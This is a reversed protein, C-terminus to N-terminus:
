KKLHYSIIDFATSDNVVIHRSFQLCKFICTSCGSIIYAIWTYLSYRSLFSTNPAAIFSSTKTYFILMHYPEAAQTLVSAQATLGYWILVKTLGYWIFVKGDQNIMALVIANNSQNRFHPVQHLFIQKLKIEPESKGM